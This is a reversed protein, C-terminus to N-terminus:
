LIRFCLSLTLGDYAPSASSFSFLLMSTSACPLLFFDFPMARMSGETRTFWDSAQMMEFCFPPSFFFVHLFHSMSVFSICHFISILIRCLRRFFFMSVCACVSVCVYSANGFSLPHSCRIRGQRSFFLSLVLEALLALVHNNIELLEYICM